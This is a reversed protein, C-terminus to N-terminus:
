KLTRAVVWNQVESAGQKKLVKALENLSAGSTMVDDVIAIRLDKLDRDCAFAGRINRRRQDLPLDAQPATDRIRVALDPVFQLRHRRASIRGIEAAQNFGREKLRNAHLPLPLVLDPPTEDSLRQTLADAFFRGLALQGGYKFAQILRNTPFTYSFAAM